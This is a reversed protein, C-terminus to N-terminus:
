PRSTQKPKAPIAQEDLAHSLEQSLEVVRESSTEQSLEQAIAQWRRSPIKAPAKGDQM